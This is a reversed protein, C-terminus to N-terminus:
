REESRFYCKKRFAVFIICKRKIYYPLFHCFSRLFLCKRVVFACFVAVLQAFVVISFGNEPNEM